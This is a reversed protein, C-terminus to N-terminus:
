AATYSRNRAHGGLLGTKRDEGLLPVVNAAEHEGAAVAERQEIPVAVQPGSRGAPVAQEEVTRAEQRSQAHPEGSPSRQQERGSRAAPVFPKRDM